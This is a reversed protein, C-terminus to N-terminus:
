GALDLLRGSSGASNSSGTARRGSGEVQKRAAQHADRMLDSVKSQKGDDDAEQLGEIEGARGVGSACSRWCRGAVLCTGRADVGEAQWRGEPRAVARQDDRWRYARPPKDLGRVLM